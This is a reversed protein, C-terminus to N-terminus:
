TNKSKNITSTTLFQLRSQLILTENPTLHQFSFQPHLLLSDIIDFEPYNGAMFSDFVSRITANHRDSINILPHHLLFHFILPSSTSSLVLSINRHSSPNFGKQILSTFTTLDDDAITNLVDNNLDDYRDDIPLKETPLSFYLDALSHPNNIVLSIQQQIDPNMKIQQLLKLYATSSYYPISYIKQSVATHKHHIIVRSITIKNKTTETLGYSKIPFNTKWKKVIGTLKLTNIV